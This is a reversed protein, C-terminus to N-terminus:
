IYQNWQPECIRAIIENTSLKIKSKPLKYFHDMIKTLLKSSVASPDYWYTSRRILTHISLYWHGTVECAEAVTRDALALISEQNCWSDGTTMSKHARM